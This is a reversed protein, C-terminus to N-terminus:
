FFHPLMKSVSKVWKWKRVGGVMSHALEQLEADSIVSEEGKTSAHGREKNYGYIIKFKSAAGLPPTGPFWSAGM